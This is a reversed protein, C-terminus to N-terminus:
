KRSERQFGVATVAVRQLMFSLLELRLIIKFPLLSYIVNFHSAAVDRGFFLPSIEDAGSCNRGFNQKIEVPNFEDHIHTGQSRSSKKKAM